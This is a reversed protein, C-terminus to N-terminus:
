AIRSCATNFVISVLEAPDSVVATNVLSSETQISVHADSVSNADTQTCVHASAEGIYHVQTAGVRAQQAVEDNSPDSGLPHLLKELCFTQCVPEFAAVSSIDQNSSM